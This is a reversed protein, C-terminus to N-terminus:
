QKEVRILLPAKGKNPMSGKAKYGRGISDKIHEKDDGKIPRFHSSSLQEILDQSAERKGEFVHVNWLNTDGEEYSFPISFMVAMTDGKEVSYTLVGAIGESRSIARADYILAMGTDLKSPIGVDSKTSDPDLYTGPATWQAGSENDVGIAVAHHQPMGTLIKNLVGVNLEVGPIVQGAM